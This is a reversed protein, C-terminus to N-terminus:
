VFSKMRREEAKYKLADATKQSGATESMVALRLFNKMNWSFINLKVGFLQTQFIEVFSM